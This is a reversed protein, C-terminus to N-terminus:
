GRGDHGRPDAHKLAPEHHGLTHAEGEGDKRDCRHCRGPVDLGLDLGQHIRDSPTLDRAPTREREQGDRAGGRRTAWPSQRSM